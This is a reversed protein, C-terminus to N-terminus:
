FSSSRWSQLGKVWLSKCYRKPFIYFEKFFSLYLEHSQCWKLSLNKRMLSVGNAYPKSLLPIVNMSCLQVTAHRPKRGSGGGGVELNVLSQKTNVAPFSFLSLAAIRQPSWSLIGIIMLSRIRAIGFFEMAVLIKYNHRPALLSQFKWQFFSSLPAM